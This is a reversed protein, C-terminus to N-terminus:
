MPRGDARTVKLLTIWRTVACLALYALPIPAAPGQLATSWFLVPGVYDLGRLGWSVSVVWGSGCLVSAHACQLCQAVHSLVVGPDGPALLPIGPSARSRVRWIGRSEWLSCPLCQGPPRQRWRHRVYAAFVHPYPVSLTNVVCSCQEVPESHRNQKSRLSIAEIECDRHISM